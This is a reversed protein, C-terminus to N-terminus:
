PNRRPLWAREPRTDNNLMAVWPAASRALGQNCAPAFGQNSRNRILRLPIGYAACGEEVLAVSDDSSGNDVFVLEFDSVTQLALHALLPPLHRRGNLNLVVISATPTM